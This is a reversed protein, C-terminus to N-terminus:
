QWSPHHSVLVKHLSKPMREKVARYREPTCEGLAFDELYSVELANLLEPDANSLLEEVLRFHKEAEWLRGCDIAQETARRFATVECHLLGTEHQSIQGVVNPFDSALRALFDDRDFPVRLRLRRVPSYVPRDRVAIRRRQGRESWLGQVCSPTGGIPCGTRGATLLPAGAAQHWTWTKAQIQSRCRAM